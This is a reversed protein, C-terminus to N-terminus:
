AARRPPITLGDLKSPKMVQKAAETLEPYWAAMIRIWAATLNNPVKVQSGDPRTITVSDRLDDASRKVRIPRGLAVRIRADSVIVDWGLPNDAIWALAAELLQRPSQPTIRRTDFALQVATM